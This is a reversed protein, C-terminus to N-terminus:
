APISVLGRDKLGNLALGYRGRVGTKEFIHKLHIKVTGPRIGLDNAIEKNKFGQEVLELVQQERATLESRPYRDARASDRFVCDEMWSRGLAVTRLCALVVPIGATKRLIGRAGAQLFRLAEAETVSVGWVVIATPQLEDTKLDALWELIAQMGFAKDIMLVDPATRRVLDHAQALSDAVEAFRLDPSGTLLTRVGEATVPQTDCVSIRKTPAFQQAGNM